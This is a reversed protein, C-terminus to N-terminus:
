VPPKYKIRIWNVYKQWSGRHFFRSARELRHSRNSNYALTQWTALSKGAFVTKKARHWNVKEPPHVKFARAVTSHFRENSWQKQDLPVVKHVKELYTYWSAHGFFSKGNKKRNGAENYLAILSVGGVKGLARWHKPTAGGLTLNIAKKIEGHLEDDSLYRIRAM